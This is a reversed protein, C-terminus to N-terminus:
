GFRKRDIQYCLKQFTDMLDWDGISEALDWCNCMHQYIQAFVQDQKEEM